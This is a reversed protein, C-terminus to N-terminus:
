IAVIERARIKHCRQCMRVQYLQDAHPLVKSWRTWRHPRVLAFCRRPIATAPIEIM